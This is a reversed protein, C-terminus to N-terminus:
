PWMWTWSHSNGGASHNFMLVTSQELRLYSPPPLVETGQHNTQMNLHEKHAPEPTQVITHFSGHALCSPHAPVRWWRNVEYESSHQTVSRTSWEIFAEPHCQQLQCFKQICGSHPWKIPTRHVHVSISPWHQLGHVGNRGSHRETDLGAAYWYM